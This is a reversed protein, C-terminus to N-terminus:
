SGPSANLLELAKLLQVDESALLEARTLGEVDRPFLMRAGAPLEVAIDPEIGQKRIFRGNATLWQSTGLLLGSGDELTYPQLVTGTGFTTEGVISARQHDQIAGAFIESSSTSGQNVLVVMPIDTAIGGKRVPFAERRGEADEQQLVNGGKLFQSTVKIAQDLLGGPNNRLDLILSTAGDAEAERVAKILDREANTSFQNLRIQAVQTGPLMAWTVAPVTIQSRTISIQLSKGEDPRLVTLVVETGAEGRISEVVESISWATVDQGDVEVIVDGAKIGAKEAPSGDFPAVIVPTGEQEGVLAGIGSFRGSIATQQQVLEEPTLFRTHGEDGLAEIVGRIAAYELNTTELVTRDVFKNRVIDWVQRLTGFDDPADAAQVTSNPDGLIAGAGFAASTFLISFLVVFFINALRQM